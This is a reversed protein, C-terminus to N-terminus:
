KLGTAYAALGIIERALSYVDRLEFYKAHVSGTAHLGARQFAIRTRTVHFYQTAILVSGLGRARLIGIANAATAATDVGKADLLIASSPVGQANLYEAMVKAENFGERGIGGSVIILPALHMNYARIAADLRAALRPSPKGNPDITNGLVVVADAVALRDTLGDIAIAGAAVLLTTVTALITRRLIRMLDLTRFM